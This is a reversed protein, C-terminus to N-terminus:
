LDKLTSKLKKNHHATTIMLRDKSKQEKIM